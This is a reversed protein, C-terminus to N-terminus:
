KAGREIARALARLRNAATREHMLMYSTLEVSKNIDVAKLVRVEPSSLLELVPVIEMIAPSHDTNRLLLSLDRASLNGYVEREKVFTAIVQTVLDLKRQESTSREELLSMGDSSRFMLAVDELDLGLKRATRAIQILESVTVLACGKKKAHNRITDGSFGPGIIATYEAGHKDRHAELAVDSVDGHSVAGSTKAKGDVTALVTSGKSDRWSVLVDTDGSGGIRRAEFGMCTFADAIAKEFAVGSGDGNASPDVSADKLRGFLEEDAACSLEVCDFADSASEPEQINKEYEAPDALPLESVLKKGLLTAKLHLYRPEELLGAELLLGAIWRATDKSIGFVKARAYIENRTIDNQAADVMEGVFRMNAHLIRIFDIDYSTECWAKAAPTAIYIAKGVEAILDAAKLFPLMSEVSTSKCNFREEVFTFLESRSVREFAFTAISRLNEIRNPSPVWITYTSRKWHLSPDDRLHKLMSEIEIPAKQIEVDDSESEFTEVAEPNVIEWRSLAEVGRRTLGWKRNGVNEIFGLVELWDLRKRVNSLISWDLHYAGCLCDNAEQVTLPSESIASLLEGFLKVESQIIDALAEEKESSELYDKGRATLCLRGFQNRALGMGRLFTAYERWARPNDVVDEIAPVDSLGVTGLQDLLGVLRKVLPVYKQKGGPLDPITWSKERWRSRMENSAVVADPGATM